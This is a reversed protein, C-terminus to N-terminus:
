EVSNALVAGITQLDGHRYAGKVAEGNAMVQPDNEMEAEEAEFLLDDLIEFLDQLQELDLKKIAAVLTEFSNNTQM